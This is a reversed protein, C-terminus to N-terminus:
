WRNGPLPSGVGPAQSQNNPKRNSLSDDDIEHTDPYASIDIGGIPMGGPRDPNAPYPEVEVVLFPSINPAEHTSHGKESYSKKYVFIVQLPLTNCLRIIPYAYAEYKLQV